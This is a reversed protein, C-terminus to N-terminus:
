VVVRFSLNPAPLLMFSCISGEVVGVHEIFEKAGGHEILKKGHREIVQLSYVVRMDGWEGFIYHHLSFSFALLDVILSTTSVKMFIPSFLHTLFDGIESEGDADQPPYGPAAQVSHVMSSKFIVHETRWNTGKQEEALDIHDFKPDSSVSAEKYNYLECMLMTFKLLLCSKGVGSDGCLLLM